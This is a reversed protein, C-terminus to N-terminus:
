SSGQGTEWAEPVGKEASLLDWNQIPVRPTDPAQPPPIHLVSWFTFFSIVWDETLPSTEAGLIQDLDASKGQVTKGLLKVWRVTSTESKWFPLSFFPKLKEWSAALFSDSTPGNRMRASCDTHNLVYLCQTVRIAVRVVFVLSGLHIPESTLHLCHCLWRLICWWQYTRHLNGGSRDWCRQTSRPWWRCSHSCWWQQYQDIEISFGDAGCMKRCWASRKTENVGWDGKEPVSIERAHGASDWNIGGSAGGNELSSFLSFCPGTEDWCEEGMQDDAASPGGTCGEGNM